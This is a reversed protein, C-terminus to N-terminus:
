GLIEEIKAAYEEDPILSDRYMEESWLEIRNRMGIFRVDKQIGAYERLSKSVGFRWSSDMQVTEVDSFYRRLLQAEVRNWRNLRESLTRVEEEWAKHTFVVLCPSFVDRKLVLENDDESLSKRYVSPLFLRGKADIKAEINGIFDM